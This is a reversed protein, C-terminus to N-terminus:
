TPDELAIRLRLLFYCPGEKCDSSLRGEETRGSLALFHALFSFMESIKRRRTKSEKKISGSKAQFLHNPTCYTKYVIPFYKSRNCCGWISWCSENMVVPPLGDIEETESESEIGSKLENWSKGLSGASSRRLIHRKATSPSRLVAYKDSSAATSGLWSQLHRMSSQDSYGVSAFAQWSDWFSVLRM